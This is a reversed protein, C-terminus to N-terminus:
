SELLKARLGNGKEPLDAGIMKRATPVKDWHNWLLVGRVQKGDLYYIVGEGFPELWDEVTQHRTGLEGVAEYGMDFLDSYFFPLYDYPKGQGAMARGAAKGMKLANDEHEIRIQKNLSSQFYRAIDGAAFVNPQGARLTEDVVVGDDVKLGAAEALEVNLESGIGSVVADVEIEGTKKGDHDTLEVLVGDTRETLTGVKTGSRLNVGENRYRDTIFKSLDEPYVHDGITKGPFIMEVDKDNMSLAAALESGIFGSGVVAFRKGQEALDFLKRFDALTRYAIIRDSDPAIHRPRVGTALLLADFTFTHGDDDRVQSKDLDLHEATHGLHLDVGDPVPLWVDDISEGKWLAKSLWPRQYPRDSDNGIVGITGQEDVDRIGRMAADAAMGGGVILYQYHKNMM